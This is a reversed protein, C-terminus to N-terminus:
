PARAKEATGRAFFAVPVVFAKALTIREYIPLRRDRLTHQM